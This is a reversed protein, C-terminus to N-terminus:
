NPVTTAVRMQVTRSLNTTPGLGVYGSFMQFQYSVTVTVYANGQADSGSGSAVTPAPTIGGADALAAAQVSAYPSSAIGLPDSAYLAGNRACNEITASYYFLRGYDVLALTLFVLPTALIAMEVAAVGRREGKSCQRTRRLFM